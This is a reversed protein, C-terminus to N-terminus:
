NGEGWRGGIVSGMRSGRHINGSRLATRTESHGPSCALFGLFSM